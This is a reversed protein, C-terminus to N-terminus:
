RTAVVGFHSTLLKFVGLRAMTKFMLRRWRDRFKRGDELLYVWRKLIAHDDVPIIKQIHNYHPYVTYFEVKSFGARELLGELGWYSHSYTRFEEGRVFRSYPNALRRPLVNGWRLGSHPDRHGSLFPYGYRNEVGLYIIGKGRLIRFTERLLSEQIEQPNGMISNALRGFSGNMVVLDFSEDPFPLFRTNGGCLPILNLIGDQIKRMQLLKVRPLCADMAIVERYFGTLDVALMGWGCGLDLVQSDRSLPLLFKWDARGADTVASMFDQGEDGNYDQVFNNQAVKWGDEEALRILDAYGTADLIRDSEVMRETFVPIEDKIQWNRRCKLCAYAVESCDVIGGCHPCCFSLDQHDKGGWHGKGKMM